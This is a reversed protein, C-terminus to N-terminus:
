DDWGNITGCVAYAIVIVITMVIALYIRIAEKICNFITKIM